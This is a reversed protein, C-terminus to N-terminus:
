AAYGGHPADPPFSPFAPKPVPQAPQIPQAPQAPPGPLGMQPVGGAITAAIQQALQQQEPGLAGININTVNVNIIPSAKPVTGCGKAMPWFGPPYMLGSPLGNGPGRFAAPISAGGQPQGGGAGGGSHVRARAQCFAFFLKSQVM